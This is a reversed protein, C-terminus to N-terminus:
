NIIVQHTTRKGEFDVTFVYHGLAVHGLDVLARSGSFSQSFVVEGSSAAVNLRTVTAGEVEGHIRVEFVKGPNPFVTVSTRNMNPHFVLEISAEQKEFPAAQSITSGISTPRHRLDNSSVDSCEVFLPTTFAHVDSGVSAHFGPKWNVEYRAKMESNGDVLVDLATLSALGKYDESSGPEIHIDNIIVDFQDKVSNLQYVENPNFPHFIDPPGWEVGRITWSSAYAGMRFSNITRDKLQSPDFLPDELPNFPLPDCGRLEFYGQEDTYTSHSYHKPSSTFDGSVVRGVYGDGKVIAGAIPNGFQDVVQGTLTGHYSNGDETWVIGTNEPHLFPNFYRDNMDLADPVPDLQQTPPPNSAWDVLTIAATKRSPVWGSTPHPNDFRLLGYYREVFYALNHQTINSPTPNEAWNPNHFLWWGYGSSRSDRIMPYTARLFDDQAQEDGHCADPFVLLTNPTGDPNFANEGGFGTETIVYPKKIYSDYHRIMNQYREIMSALQASYESPLLNRYLDPGPYLHMSAFDVELLMPDWGEKFADDNFVGGITTLHDPDVAKVAQNWSAALECIQAKTRDLGDPLTVFTPEGYFEYGLINHLQLSNIYSAFVELFELHDLHNVDGLQVQVLPTGLVPEVLVKLGLANAHDCVVKIRDFYFASVPNIAPDSSYPPDMNVNVYHQGFPFRKAELYFGPGTAKKFAGSILRITNFGQAKIEALDQDISPIGMDPNTFGFWGNDSFLSSRGFRLEGVQTPTPTVPYTPLDNPDPLYTTPYYTDVVYNMVMPFFPQGNEDYFQDGQVTIYQANAITGILMSLLFVYGRIM